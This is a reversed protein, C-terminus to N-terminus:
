KGLGAIIKKAIENQGAESSIYNRDKDNTLYGLELVLAPCQAHSLVYLNVDKVEKKALGQTTLESVMNEAKELSASYHENKSVYASIGNDSRNQSYNVHLSVLLDPNLANIKQVRENLSMTVDDERLLVIELDHGNYFTKVKRAISHVLEKESLHNHMAGHDDGGHGADIVITRKEPATSFAFCLTVLVPGALRALNRMFM